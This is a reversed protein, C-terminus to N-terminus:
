IVAVATEKNARGDFYVKKSSYRRGFLQGAPNNIIRCL